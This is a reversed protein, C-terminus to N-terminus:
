EEKGDGSIEKYLEHIKDYINQKQEDTLNKNRRIKSLTRRLTENEELEERALLPVKGLMEFADCESIGYFKCVERIFQDSVPKMGREVLSIFNATVGLAKGLEDQSLGKENRLRTLYEGFQVMRFIQDAKANLDLSERKVPM